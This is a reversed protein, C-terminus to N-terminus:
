SGLAAVSRTGRHCRKFRDVEAEVESAGVVADVFLQDTARLAAHRSSQETTNDVKTPRGKNSSSLPCLNAFKRHISALDEEFRSWRWIEKDISDSGGGLHVQIADATALSRRLDDMRQRNKRKREPSLLSWDTILKQINSTTQREMESKKQELDSSIGVLSTRISNYFWASTKLLIIVKTVHDQASEFVSCVTQVRSCEGTRLAAKISGSLDNSVHADIDITRLRARLLHDTLNRVPVVLGGFLTDNSKQIAVITADSGSHARALATQTSLFPQSHCSGRFGRYWALLLGITLVMGLWPVRRHTQNPRQAKRGGAAKLPQAGKASDIHIAQEEKLSEDTTGKDISRGGEIRKGWTDISDLSQEHEKSVNNAFEPVKRASHPTNVLTSHYGEEEEEEEEKHKKGLVFDNKQIQAQHQPMQLPEFQYHPPSEEKTRKGSINWEKVPAQLKFGPM